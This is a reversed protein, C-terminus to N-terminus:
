LTSNLNAFFLEPLKYDRTLSYAAHSAATRSGLRVKNTILIALRMYYKMPGENASTSARTPVANNVLLLLMNGFNFDCHSPYLEGEYTM